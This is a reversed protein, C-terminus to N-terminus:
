APEGQRAKAIAARAASLASPLDMRYGVDGASLVLSELAALLAPAAAILRANEEDPIHAIHKSGIGNPAFAHVEWWMRVEGPKREVQEMMTWPGPTHEGM